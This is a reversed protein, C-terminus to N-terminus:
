YTTSLLPRRATVGDDEYRGSKDDDVEDIEIGALAIRRQFPPCLKARQAHAQPRTSASGGGPPRADCFSDSLRSTACVISAAAEGLKVADTIIIRDDDDDNVEVTSSLMPLSRVARRTTRAGGRTISRSLQMLATLKQAPCTPRANLGARLTTQAVVAIAQKTRRWQDAPLLGSPIHELRQRVNDRVVPHAAVWQPVPRASRRAPPRPTMTLHQTNHDSLSATYCSARLASMSTTSRSAQPRTSTTAMCRQRRGCRKRLPLKSFIPSSTEGLAPLQNTHSHESEDRRASTRRRRPSSRRQPRRASILLSSGAASTFSRARRREIERRMADRQATSIDYNHVKVITLVASVGGLIDTFM